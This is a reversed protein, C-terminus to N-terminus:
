KQRHQNSWKKRVLLETGKALTQVALVPPVWSGAVGRGVHLQSSSASSQGSSCIILSRLKCNHNVSKLAKERSFIIESPKEYFRSM